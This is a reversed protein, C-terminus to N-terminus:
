NWGDNSSNLTPSQQSDNTNFDVFLYTFTSTFIPNWFFYQIYEQRDYSRKDGKDKLIDVYVTLEDISIAIEWKM